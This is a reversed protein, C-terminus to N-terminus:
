LYYEYSDNEPSIRIRANVDYFETIISVHAKKGYYPFYMKDIHGETPFYQMQLPTERQFLFHLFPSFASRNKVSFPVRHTRHQQRYCGVRRVRNASSSSLWTVSLLINNNEVYRWSCLISIEWGGSVCERMWTWYLLAFECGLKLVYVEWKVICVCEESAYVVLLYSMGTTKTKMELYYWIHKGRFVSWMWSSLVSSFSPIVFKLEKLKWLM